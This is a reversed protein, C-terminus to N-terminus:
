ASAAAETGDEADGGYGEDEEDIDYLDTLGAGEEADDWKQYIDAAQLFLTVYDEQQQPTLWEPANARAWAALSTGELVAACPVAESEAEVSAVSDFESGHPTGASDSADDGPASLEAESVAALAVQVPWDLQQQAMKAGGYVIRQQLTSITTEGPVKYCRLVVGLPTVGFLRYAQCQTRASSM